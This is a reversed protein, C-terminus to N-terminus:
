HLILDQGAKGRLFSVQCGELGRTTDGFQPGCLGTISPLHHLAPKYRIAIQLVGVRLDHLAKDKEKIDLQLAVLVSM